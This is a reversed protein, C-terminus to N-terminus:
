DSCFDKTGDNDKRQRLTLSEFGRSAQAEVRKGLSRWLGSPSSELGKVKYVVGLCNLGEIISGWEDALLCLFYGAKCVRTSLRDFYM